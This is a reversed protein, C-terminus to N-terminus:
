SSLNMQAHGLRVGVVPQALEVLELRFRDV